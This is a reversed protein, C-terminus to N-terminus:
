TQKFRFSIDRQMLGSNHVTCEAICMRVPQSMVLLTPVLNEARIGGATSSKSNPFDNDLGWLFKDCVKKMFFYAHTDTFM